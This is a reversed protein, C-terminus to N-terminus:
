TTKHTRRGMDAHEVLARKCSCVTSLLNNAINGLIIIVYFGPYVFSIEKRLINLAFKLIAAM